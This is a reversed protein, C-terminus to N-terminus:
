PFYCSKFIPLSHINDNFQIYMRTRFVSIYISPYWLRTQIAGFVDMVRMACWSLPSLTDSMTCSDSLNTFNGCSRWRRCTQIHQQDNLSKLQFIKNTKLNRYQFLFIKSTRFYLRVFIRINLLLVSVGFASQFNTIELQESLLVPFKRNLSSLM